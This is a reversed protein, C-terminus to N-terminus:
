VNEVDSLVKELQVILVPDSIYSEKDTDLLQRYIHNVPYKNHLVDESYGRHLAELVEGVVWQNANKLEKVPYCLKAVYSYSFGTEAAIEAFIRRTSKGDKLKGVFMSRAMARNETYSTNVKEM